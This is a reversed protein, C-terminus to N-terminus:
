KERNNRKGCQELTFPQKNVLQYMLHKKLLFKQVLSHKLKTKTRTGGATNACSVPVNEQKLSETSTKEHDCVIKNKLHDFLHIIM